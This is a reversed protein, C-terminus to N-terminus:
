FKLEKLERLYMGRNTDENLSNLQEELKEIENMLKSIEDGTLTWISMAMLKPIDNDTFKKSSLLKLADQRTSTKFKSTNSLYFEIFRAKESAFRSDESVLEILKKRRDEYRDLRWGIFREMISDVNEFKELKGEENWLTYNETDRSILKLKQMLVSKDLATTSRPASIIFDFSDETSLDDFDKIFDSDIIKHLHDKYQDQFTGIPLESVKITTTNIIEFKGTMAIQNTDANREVDGKFGNFWPLLNKTKKGSLYNITYDRLDEPNYSLIKCAHGTGTGEAGNILMFPLIPLFYKPEIKDGESLINQLIIDDDKKFIKRFNPSFRTFIYRPSSSSKELRSGFQGSPIFVNLNNSGPYNNAMAIITSEMSTTGHHYDTTAAIAASVREIQIEPANEGRIMMGWIAKRQSVKLGDLLSPISRKNDAISFEKMPGHMFQHATYVRNKNSSM